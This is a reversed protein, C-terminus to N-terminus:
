LKAKRRPTGILVINCGEMPLTVTEVDMQAAKAIAVLHRNWEARNSPNGSYETGSPKICCPCVVFPVRHKAAYLIAHDTAEDPHMAVILRYGRPANRYDFIQSHWGPPGKARRHRGDWCVIRRYGHLRLARKLHGRGAAVDAVPADRDPFREAVLEAMLRNRRNDGM